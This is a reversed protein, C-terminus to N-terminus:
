DAIEPVAAKTENLNDTLLRALEKGIKKSYQEAGQRNMHGFDYFLEAHNVFDQDRYHDICPLHHKAALQRAFLFVDEQSCVYMPSITLILRINHQRCVDMFRELLAVRETDVAFPYEEAKVGTTDIQGDMPKWGKLERNMTGWRGFLLDPLSGTYRYVTSLRCPWYNGALKLMDDCAESVGCYPALSGARERGSFPTQLWDCPHVELVIAQPTYRELINGLLGYQYYINKIGWDAANFCSAGLETELIAPVYHHLCRSSGMFLIADRTTENAYSIKYADTANSRNYLFKLLMGSSRDMVAFLGAIVVIHILLKKM